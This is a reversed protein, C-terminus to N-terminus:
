AAASGTADPVASKVYDEALALVEAGDEGALGIFERKPLVVKKAFVFGGGPIKFRLAKGKKPLITIGLQHAIMYGMNTGVRAQTATFDSTISQKGIGSDSLTKGGEVRARISQKWKKGAPDTEREFREMTSDELYKAIGQMLPSLDGLKKQLESLRHQIDSDGGLRLDFDGAM